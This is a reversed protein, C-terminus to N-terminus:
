TRLAALYQSQREANQRIINEASALMDGLCSCALSYYVTTGEKRDRVIGANKLVALHKSVTSIDAGVLGALDRVCRQGRELNELIFIRSPHGMAKFVAARAASRLHEIRDMQKANLGFLWSNDLSVGHFAFGLDLSVLARNESKCVEILARDSEGSLGQDSVTAV